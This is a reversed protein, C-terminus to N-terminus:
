LNPFTSVFLEILHQHTLIFEGSCQLDSLLSFNTQYVSVPRVWLLRCGASTLKFNMNILQIQGCGIMDLSQHPTGPNKVQDNVGQHRMLLASHGVPFCLCSGRTGSGQLGGRFFFLKLAYWKAKPLKILEFTKLFKYWSHVTDDVARGRNNRLTNSQSGLPTDESQKQETIKAETYALIKEAQHHLTILGVKHELPYHFVFPPCHIQKSLSETIEIQIQLGGRSELLCCLTPTDGIHFQLKSKHWGRGRHM